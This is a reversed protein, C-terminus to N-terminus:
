IGIIEQDQFQKWTSVVVFYLYQSKVPSLPPYLLAIRRSQRHLGSDNRLQPNPDEKRRSEEIDSDISM